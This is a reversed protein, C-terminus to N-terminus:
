KGRLWNNVEKVLEVQPTVKTRQTRTQIRNHNEMVNMVAQKVSPEGVIDWTVIRFGPMVKQIQNQGESVIEMDGVGRSSIGIQVKNRILAALMAGCPMDEIVEAVGYVYKGEMWIKTIVHSVRDLHIKADCNGTWFSCGNQEMYFNGHDTTLCYIRGNHTKEEISLFRDDLHIGNTSSLTLQHLPKKNKAEILHDAFLYDEKTEIVTRYCCGGSKVYCEHLDDILRESVSFVNSRGHKQRGDGIQFWKVLEELYPADLQKVDSPIYKSYCDGLVSLYKYLRADSTYFTSGSETWRLDSSFNALMERIAQKYDDKVQHILIGHNDDTLSGEALWLGLFSTFAKTDLVLDNTIDNKYRNKSITLTNPDIGKITYTNENNGSWKAVRPIINKNFKKRDGYIESVAAQVQHREHTGDNRTDMVIKHPATFSSNIHRGNFDYALGKYENDIIKNVRSPVMKGNVRSYVFDGVKIDKFKKWGDTALVKFNDSLLCPHDFEGKIARSTVDEQLAAIAEKLVAYPYQRFNQNTEDAKQFIGTIRLAPRDTTGEAVTKVAELVKFPYVDTILNTNDVLNSM